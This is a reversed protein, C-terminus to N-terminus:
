KIRALKKAPKNQQADLEQIRETLWDESVKWEVDVGYTLADDSRMRKLHIGRHRLLSTFKNPTKPMGGVCHEFVVLLDERTLRSEVVIPLKVGQAKLARNKFPETKGGHRGDWVRRVERKILDNYATVFTSVDGGIQMALNADGMSDWLDELRGDALFLGLEDLSTRNAAVIDRHAQNHLVTAAKDADAKRTMLYAAFAELEKPIQGYIQARTLQLKEHQYVGVNYRRDHEKIVVPDPQNSSMILNTFNEIQVAVRNMNRVSLFDETIFTRLDGSIIDKRQSASVQIEDIFAIIAQEMWSNFKEELESARKQVVYQRGLLPSLVKDILVGKGTGEVGHLIWATKTKIRQQFIVALWNLFHEFTEDEQGGSVAHAIIKRILPAASLPNQAKYEARLYPSAVFTNIRKAELDLIQTDRPDFYMDWVPIVDFPPLGHNEMWHALQLESRAPYLQLEYSEENWVGNWYTATRKDRFALILEGGKTPQAQLAKRNSVKEKYYDPLLEKTLYSPEGKFNHIYEHNEVPHYYAWSDGGNLNFYVFGREERMGTITAEGPKSQIEIDGIWRTQARLPKLGAAKRLENRLERAEEQLADLTRSPVVSKASLVMSKGPIFQIRESDKLTSPVGKGLQPPAIYLLKDNQCATVDVPWHLAAGTLSLTLAARLQPNSLNLDMLWNKLMPAPVKADLMFFLHASLSKNGAIGYSASYQVVCAVDKLLPMAALFEKITGFPAGDLDLCIWDTADDTRTAGARSEESLPRLLNGKVLCHGEAAHKTIATYADRVTSIQESHSTFNKVIPYSSKQLEGQKDVWFSKRMPLDASLFNMNTTM